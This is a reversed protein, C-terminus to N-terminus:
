FEQIIVVNLWNYRYVNGTVPDVQHGSSFDEGGLYNYNSIVNHDSLAEFDLNGIAGPSIDWLVDDNFRLHSGWVSVMAFGPSITM